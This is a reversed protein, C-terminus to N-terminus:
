RATKLQVFLGHAPYASVPYIQAIKMEAMIESILILNTVVTKSYKGQDIVKDDASRLRVIHKDIDEKSFVGFSDGMVGKVCNYLVGGFGIFSGEVKESPRFWSPQHSSQRIKQIQSRIWPRLRAEGRIGLPNPSYNEDPHCSRFKLNNVCELWRIAALSALDSSTQLFFDGVKTPNQLVIQMSKGGIDISGAPPSKLGYKVRFSNQAAEFGLHAEEDISLVRM